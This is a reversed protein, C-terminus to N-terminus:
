VICGECSNTLPRLELYISAAFDGHFGDWTPIRITSENQLAGQRATRVCTGVRGVGRALTHVRVAAGSYALWEFVQVGEPLPWRKSNSQAERADHNADPYVTSYIDHMSVHVPHHLSVQDAVAGVVNTLYWSICAEEHCTDVHLYDPMVEEAVPKFTHAMDGHHFVWRNRHREDLVFPLQTEFVDFSHLVGFGNDELAALIWLTSYGWASSVEFVNAPKFHRLRLYLIESETDGTLCHHVHPMGSPKVTENACFRAALQRVRILDAAHEHYLHGYLRCPDKHGSHLSSRLGVNSRISATKHVGIVKLGMIALVVVLSAVLLIAGRSAVRPVRKMHFPRKM